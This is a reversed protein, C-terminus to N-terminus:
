AQSALPPLSSHAIQLPLRRQSRQKPSEIGMSQKEPFLTTLSEAPMQAAQDLAPLGPMDFDLDASRLDLTVDRVLQTKVQM